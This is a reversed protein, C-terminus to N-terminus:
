YASPEEYTLVMKKGNLGCYSEIGLCFLQPELNDCALMISEVDSFTKVDLTLEENTFEINSRGVTRSEYGKYGAFQNCSAIDQSRKEEYSPELKPASYLMYAFAYFAIAAVALITSIYFREQKFAQFKNIM